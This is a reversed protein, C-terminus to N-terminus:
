QGRDTPKVELKKLKDVTDKEKHSTVIRLNGVSRQENM